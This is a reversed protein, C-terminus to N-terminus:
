AKQQNLAFKIADAIGHDAIDPAVYDAIAKVEDRANGVAIGLGAQKILEYDNMSDGIAVVDSIDKNLHKLLFSVGSAKNIGKPVIDAGGFGSSMLHVDFEPFTQQIDLCNETTDELYFSFLPKNLVFSIDKPNVELPAKKEQFRKKLKELNSTCWENECLAILCFDKKQVYQILPLKLQEPCISSPM